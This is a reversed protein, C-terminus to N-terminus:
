IEQKKMRLSNEYDEVLKKQESLQNQLKEIKMELIVPNKNNNEKGLRLKPIKSSKVESSNGENIVRDVRDELTELRKRSKIRLNETQRLPSNM